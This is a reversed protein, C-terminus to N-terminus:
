EQYPQIIEPTPLITNSQIAAELVGKYKKDIYWYDLAFSEDGYKGLPNKPFGFKQWYLLRTYNAHWLLVYPYDKYILQDIQKLIENRKSLSLEKKQLEILKDVEASKFGPLNHSGKEDSYKSHWQSEPDKFIGSGWAAWTMDFDFSDVRSSWAALDTTEINADIGLLKAKELFVTFYKETSRDRDLITFKFPEGDKELIGNANPKWGAESLLKRAKELDFEVPKNPNKTNGLYFDPYYSNTPEYENFALKEIMLKRDVILSIAERVKKDQFIKRRTNMAWGQFGVPKLNTIRVRATHGLDFSKGKAEDVWVSAKYVPYFDIDGKKFAQLAVAEENYVKFVIQDFNHRNKNFPYGRGWWDGRRELKVYRGKKSEVLKYPGSVVPFEMNEKNFEKGEFYHKPLIWLSGGIENFNNWHDDKATISFTQPDIVVPEEFRSLSVRFVSTNNKPDMITKYTFLVDNSSVPVGDSWVANPDIQFTFTKKDSSITWSKALHPMPELTLPHYSILTEYLSTFIRATTSFQDLYYNLSKPFQHSYMRIRGGKEAEPNAVPNLARMSVPISDQSYTWPVDVVPAQETDSDKGSCSFILISLFIVQIKGLSFGLKSLKSISIM